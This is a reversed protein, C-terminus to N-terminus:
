RRPVHGSRLSNRDTTACGPSTPARLQILEDAAAAIRQPIQEIATQAAGLKELVARLPAVPVGKQEAPRTLIKELVKGVGEEDVGITIQSNSIDRGAAVSSRVATVSPESPSQAAGWRRLWDFM